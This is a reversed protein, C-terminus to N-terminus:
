IKDLTELWEESFKVLPYTCLGSSAVVTTMTAHGEEILNMLITRPCNNADFFAHNKPLGKNLNVTLMAFPETFDEGEEKCMIQIALSKDLQYQGRKFSLEYTTGYSEYKM